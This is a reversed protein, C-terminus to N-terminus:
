LGSVKLREANEAMQLKEIIEIIAGDMVVPLNYMTLNIRHDTMRGQPYNYTRIKASRDGSSVMTKRKQSIEDLYKQHELNYLRTRLEKLAKDYNKMQSKEDQCTVVVGTPVHTLRIASYTTNVSQGGPGSSCYTDKRIDETKIEIDFEEAEPLVAVTAASTHVRGQTETQPVRQVRHVGSEYKLIGYVGDGSVSFVIEKFGGMTGEMARTVEIKWKRSECFKTYMRYLDGAFISAEDGGTGARIEMVANKEDEPDAPLLLFKIKEELPDVRAELEDIEIKAMERMEEDKEVALMEKASTINDLVNKYDKYTEVIPTLNKYEKSLQIYRKMDSTVAPDILLRGVEEFRDKVGELKDLILNKSM